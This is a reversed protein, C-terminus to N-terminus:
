ESEEIVLVTRIFDTDENGNAASGLLMEDAWSLKAIVVLEEDKPPSIATDVEGAGDRIEPLLGM